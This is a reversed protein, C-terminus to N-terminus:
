SRSGGNPGQCQRAMRGRGRPWEKGAVRSSWKAGQQIDEFGWGPGRLRGMEGPFLPEPLSAGGAAMGVGRGM